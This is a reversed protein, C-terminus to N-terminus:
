CPYGGSIGMNHTKNGVPPHLCLSVLGTPLRGSIRLGFRLRFAFSILALVLLNLFKRVSRFLKPEVASFSSGVPATGLLVFAEAPPSSPAEGRGPGSKM